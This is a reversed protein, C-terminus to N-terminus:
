EEDEICVGFYNSAVISGNVKIQEIWAFEKKATVVPQSGAKLVLTSYNESLATEAKDVTFTDIASRCQNIHHMLVEVVDGVKLSNSAFYYTDNGDFYGKSSSEEMSSQANNAQANSKCEDLDAQLKKVEAKSENYKRQLSNVTGQAAKLSKELEKKQTELETIKAALEDSNAGSNAELEDIKQQAEALATELKAKDCMCTVLEFNDIYINVKAM